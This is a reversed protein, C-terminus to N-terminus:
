RSLLVSTVIAIYVLAILIAAVRNTTGWKKLSGDPETVKYYVDGTLLVITVILIGPFLGCTLLNALLLGTCVGSRRLWPIENYTNMKYNHIFNNEFANKIGPPTGDSFL